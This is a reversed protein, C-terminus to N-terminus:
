DTTVCVLCDDNIGGTDANCRKDRRNQESLLRQVCQTTTHTIGRVDPDSAATGIRAREGSTTNGNRSSACKSITTVGLDKSISEGVM